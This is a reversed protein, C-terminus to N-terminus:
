PKLGGVYAAVADIDEDSLKSSVQRMMGSRDNAREGARFSRMQKITYAVHQGAISPVGGPMFAPYGRGLTGHCAACPAIGRAAVGKQFIEEGQKNKPQEILPFVLPKSAYYATVAKIDAESLGAVMGAMMADARSGNKFDALQKELYERQQGALKPFNPVMSNGDIGHCGGCVAAKAADAGPAAEAAPAADGASSGSVPFLVGAAVVAISVFGARAVRVCWFVRCVGDKKSVLDIMKKNKKNATQVALRYFSDAIQSRDM